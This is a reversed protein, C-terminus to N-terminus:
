WRRASRGCIHPRWRSASRRLRDALHLDLGAAFPRCGDIEMALVAFAPAAAVTALIGPRTTVLMGIAGAVAVVLGSRCVAGFLHMGCRSSRRRRPGGIAGRGAGFARLLAVIVGAVPLLTAVLAAVGALGAAVGDAEAIVDRLEQQPPGPNRDGLGLVEPGEQKEVPARVQAVDEEQRCARGGPRRRRRLRGFREGGRGVRADGHRARIGDGASRSAAAWSRRYVSADITACRRKRSIRSKM